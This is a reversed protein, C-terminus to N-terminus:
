KILDYLNELMQALFNVDEAFQKHQEIQEAPFAENIKDLLEKVSQADSFKVRRSVFVGSDVPHVITAEYERAGALNHKMPDFVFWGDVTTLIKNVLMFSGYEGIMISYENIAEMLADARPNSESETYAYVTNRVIDLQPEDTIDVNSFILSFGKESQINFNYTNDPNKTVGSSTIEVLDDFPKNLVTKTM